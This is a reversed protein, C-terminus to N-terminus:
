DRNRRGRPFQCLVVTRSKRGDIFRETDTGGLKNKEFVIVKLNNKLAIEAAELGAPGMGIIALDYIM